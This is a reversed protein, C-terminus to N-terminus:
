RRRRALMALGGLGFLAPSAPEPIGLALELTDTFRVEDYNVNVQRTLNLTSLTSEDVNAEITDILPSEDWLGRVVAYRPSLLEEKSAGRMAGVLLSAFYRCADICAAASRTTRSSEGALQVAQVPDDAYCIAVPALRM